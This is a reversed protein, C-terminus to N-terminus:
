RTPDSHEACPTKHTSKENNSPAQQKQQPTLPQSASTPTSTNKKLHTNTTNTQNNLLTSTPASKTKSPSDESYTSQLTKRKPSNLKIQSARFGLMWKIELRFRANLLLRHRKETRLDKDILCM